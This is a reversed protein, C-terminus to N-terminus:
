VKSIMMGTKHSKKSISKGFMKRYLKERVDAGRQQNEGKMIGTPRAIYAEGKKAGAKRLHPNKVRKLLNMFNKGREIMKNMDNKKLTDDRPSIDVVHVAGRKNIGRRVLSKRFDRVRRVSERSPIVRQRRGRFLQGPVDKTKSILKESSAARRPSSYTRIYIDQKTSDDGGQENDDNTYDKIRSRLDKTSLYGTGRLGARRAISAASREQRTMRRAPGSLIASRSPTGYNSSFREDILSCELIFNKFSKM